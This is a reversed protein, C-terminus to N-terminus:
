IKISELNKVDNGFPTLIPFIKSISNVALNYKVFTALTGSPGLDIYIAPHRSELNQITKQFLIPKRVINWFHAHSILELSEGTVCSIVPMAPKNIIMERTGNMFNKEASDILSSHFGYHVPLEQHTLHDQKCHAEIWKLKDPLCSVVFHSSFNVAALETYAKFYSKNEYLATNELVALMRGESASQVFAQTQHMVAHLATDFDLVGAAVAAAFEGVSAGLVCDPKIKKELLTQTLAYEFIFIAPHSLKLDVFPVTKSLHDDFITHVLNLGSKNDAEQLYHNFIKDHEFLIRGMQYYQSGQGSYMFVIPLLSERELPFQQIPLSNM